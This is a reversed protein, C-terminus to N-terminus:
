TIAPAVTVIEVVLDISLTISRIVLDVREQELIIVASGIEEAELYLVIANTGGAGPPLEPFGTGGTVETVGTVTVFKTDFETVCIGAVGM